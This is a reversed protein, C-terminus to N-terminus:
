ISLHFSELITSLHVRLEERSVTGSAVGLALSELTSLLAHLRSYIVPLEESTDANSIIFMVLSIFATRKNGDNFPHFAIISHFLHTTKDLFTPYYTDDQIKELVSEILGVNLEGSRGGYM